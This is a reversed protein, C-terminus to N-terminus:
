QKEKIGIITGSISYLDTSLEFGKGMKLPKNKLFLGEPKRVCLAEIELTLNRYKPLGIISWTRRDNLLSIVEAPENSIIGMVKAAIKKRNDKGIGIQKDGAKVVRILEPMLSAFKVKLTVIEKEEEGLPIAVLTYKNTEFELPLGIKIAKDKYYINGQKVETKLKLRAEVEKLISDEKIIKQGQGIDLEYKHPVSQGLGIIEGRVEGNEDLEEDGVSILKLVEPRLKIFRCDTEIEVFEIKSTEVVVSKKTLIKYGFYFAPLICLLFLIVLSDIVNVKGFLRGKEDIIQMEM